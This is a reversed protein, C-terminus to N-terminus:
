PTSQYYTGDQAKAIVGLLELESLLSFIVSPQLKTKEILEDVSLQQNDTLYRLLLSHTKTLPTQLTDVLNIQIDFYQLIDSTETILNAGQKLLYHPAASKSSTIPHPPAFVARDYEAACRATALTGSRSSGEIIIVARCLGAIIRNRELFFHPLPQTGPPMESVIAGHSALINEYLYRHRAPYIYDVGGALVAITPINNKLAQSHVAGDTGLAMGSVIVTKNKPFDKIFTSVLLTGYSTPLRTGVMAVFLRDETLLSVNGKVFIGIPCDPIDRLLQPFHPDDRPLYTINKQKLLEVIKQASFTKRFTMFANVIPEKCYKLLTSSTSTLLAKPSGLTEAIEIFKQPSLRVFYSCLLHGSFSPNM